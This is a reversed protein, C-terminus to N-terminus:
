IDPTNNNHVEIPIEDEILSHPLHNRTEVWYLAAAGWFELRLNSQLLMTRIGKGIADGFKESMGNGHQENANSIQQHIGKAALWPNLAKYEGAGDSWLIKPICGAYLFAKELVLQHTKASKDEHLFIM